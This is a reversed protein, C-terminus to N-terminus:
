AVIRYQLTISPQPYGAIILHIKNHIMSWTYSQDSTRNVLLGACLWQAVYAGKRKRKKEKSNM